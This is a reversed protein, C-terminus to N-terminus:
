EGQWAGIRILRGEAHGPDVMSGYDKLNGSFRLTWYKGGIRVRMADSSGAACPRM